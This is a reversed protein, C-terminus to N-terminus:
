RSFNTSEQQVAPVEILWDSSRAVAVEMSNRRLATGPRPRRNIWELFAAVLHGGSSIERHKRRTINELLLFGPKRRKQCRVFM